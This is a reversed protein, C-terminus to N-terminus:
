KVVYDEGAKDLPEDNMSVEDSGILVELTDSLFQQLNMREKDLYRYLPDYIEDTNGNNWIRDKVKSVAAKADGSEEYAKKLLDNVETFEDYEIDEVISIIESIKM